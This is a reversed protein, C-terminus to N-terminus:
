HRFTELSERIEQLEAQLTRNTPDKGALEAHRTEATKLLELAREREGASGLCEGLEKYTLSLDQQASANQPDAAVLKTGIALSKEFNAVAGSFDGVAERVQAMQELTVTVDRQWEANAPDKAALQEAIEESRQFPTLAAQMDGHAVELLGIKEFPVSLDRLADTNEPDQASLKQRVRLAEEYLPRAEDFRKEQLAVDALKIMAVSVDRQSIADTPDSATLQRALETAIELERRAGDFEGGGLAVEGLRLHAVMADRQLRRDAPNRELLKAVEDLGTEYAERAAIRNGRRDELLGVQNYSIAYDRQYDAQPARKALDRSLRLAEQAAELANALNGATQETGSLKGLIAWEDHRVVTDNPREKELERILRLTERYRAAADVVNGQSGLLDGENQLAVARLRKANYGGENPRVARFYQDVQENVDRLLSLRGIADLKGRLDTVMFGVLEEAQARATQARLRQVYNFWTFVAGSALLLVLASAAVVAVARNRKVWKAMIERPTAAKASIIEGRQYRLLDERFAAVSRYRESPEARLAKLTIIELDSDIQKSLERPRVPTWHQLRQIDQLLSDSPQFHKRGTLMQYLVAGVSYVDAREDVNRSSRAQEPAMYGVTGVVQGSISLAAQGDAEALKALGFDTVVSEGGRRIMINGPKLDRHFVGAEHSAHLADCVQLVIALTQPQPLILSSASGTETDGTSRDPRDPAHEDLQAFAAELSPVHTEEAKAAPRLLEALSAGDIYEMAIFTVREWEGVEQIRCIHRHHLRAMVAAERRFREIQTEPAHEGALLLKIAVVNGFADRAKWVEGIGGRGLLILLRYKGFIREGDSLQEVADSLAVVECGLRQVSLVPLADSFGKAKLAYQYRFEFQSSGEAGVLLAKAALEAPLPFVGEHKGGVLLPSAATEVTAETASWSEPLARVIADVTAQTVLIESGHAVGCLRSALNVAAGMVTYDQRMSSGINGLVMKGTNIGIGCPPMMQGASAFQSRLKEMRAVQDCAAQVARLAHDAYYRPAGFLAMVEDGVIKDVTGHAANIAEMAEELYANLTGRLEEPSLHESLATFGRLDVFSVTMLRREPFKFSQLEDDSLSALERSVYREVYARFRHEDSVDQIVIDRHGASSTVKVQFTGLQGASTRGAVRVAATDAPLSIVARALEESLCRQLSSVDSGILASKEVGALRAMASNAYEIRGGRGLRLTMTEISGISVAAGDNSSGSRVDALQVKLRENEAQLQEVVTAVDNDM